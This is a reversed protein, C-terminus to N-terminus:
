RRRWRASVGFWVLGRELRSALLGSAAALLLVGLGIMGLATAAMGGAPSGTAPLPARVLLAATAINNAPNVDDAAEVRATAPNPIPPAGGSPPGTVVPFQFQPDGAIIAPIECTLFIGKATCDGAGKAPIRFTLGVPVAVRLVVNTATSPGANKVIVTLTSTQGQDVLGPSWHLQVSADVRKQVNSVVTGTDNTPDPDFLGITTEVTASNVLLSGTGLSGDVRVTLSFTSEDGAVLATGHCTVRQGNATPTPADCRPDATVLTTAVPLTDDIFYDPSTAPGNNHVTVQYTLNAGSFAPEPAATKTVSLDSQEEPSPARVTIPATNEAPTVPIDTATGSVDITFTGLVLGVNVEFHFQRCGNIPLILSGTWTLTNGSRAPPHAYFGVVPVVSNPTFSPPLVVTVSTLEHPAVNTNCATVVYGNVTDIRSTPTDAVASLGIPSVGGPSFVTNWSFSESGGAAVAVDWSLGAGNDIYQDCRCTNRFHTRSGIVSWITSYGDQQWHNGATIPVLGEIRGGLNPSTTCIASTGSIRGYGYDSNQLFCDGATYIIGTAAAPGSNSVTATTIYDERGVVYTDVQTIRLTSGPLDVVTTVTFPNAATGAGGQVQSVPTYATRPVASGGAPVDPPGWLTSATALFTGCATEGFWEGIQDDRHHVSCNLFPSITIDTLPGPSTITAAAASQALGPLVPSLVGTLVAIAALVGRKRMGSIVLRAPYATIM